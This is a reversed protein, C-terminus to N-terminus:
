TRFDSRMSGIELRVGGTHGPRCVNRVSVLVLIPLVRQQGPVDDLEGDGGVTPVLQLTGGVDGQEM